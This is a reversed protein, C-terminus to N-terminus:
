GELLNKGKPTIFTPLLEEETSDMNTIDSVEIYGNRHLRKITAQDLRRGGAFAQLAEKDNV